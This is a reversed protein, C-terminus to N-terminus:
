EETTEEEVAEEVQPFVIGQVLVNVETVDLGTMTEVATKVTNQVDSAVNQIKVGYEVLLSLSVAVNSEAIDVKIGKSLNKVGLKEVLEGALSGTMGAVGEVESAAKAAIISVVDDAIKVTTVTEKPENNEIIEENIESM